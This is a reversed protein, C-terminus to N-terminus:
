FEEWEPVQAATARAGSGGHFSRSHSRLPTSPSIPRSLKSFTAASIPKAIAPTAKHVQRCLKFQGLRATLAAVENAQSHSAANAEEVMSANQQTAQDIQNVASSIEQLGISQERAAQVVGDVNQHIEQVEKVIADLAGGARNVLTVGRKVHESSSVILAKIEKAAAASRQALERVEQAVVAFGKGADGARAAEVGANLALLNTQFAIEDIVGIIKSISLSSEQIAGMAQVADRVVAGSQEAGLRTNSVREGAQEAYRTADKVSTTIQELAAATQEVSAAQQETRRALNDATERIEEAGTYITAANESFSLMAGELKEVSQNFNSRIEELATTFPRELRVLMDGDSLRALGVALESVAFRVDQEQASAIRSREAREEEQLRRTTAAEQELLVKQRSSDLLVGLSRSLEGIEDGRHRDTLDVDLDGEALRTTQSIVRNIRAVFSRSILWGALAIVIAAVAIITVSSWVMQVLPAYVASKPVSVVAFWKAGEFPTVPVAVAFNVEGGPEVIERVVGPDGIASKWAMVDLESTDLPKGVLAADPHFAFTENAALLSIYGAGMPRVKSLEKAMDKLDFDIATSGKFVGDDWFPTAITTMLVTQGDVPFEYPDLLILEGPKGAKIPAILQENDYEPTVVTELQNGSRHVYPVFRGTADHFPSKEHEADSGDFANPEWITGVAYISRNSKVTESFLAIAADRSLSKRGPLVTLTTSLDRVIQGSTRLAAETRSANEGALATMHAISEERIQQFSFYLLLGAVTVTALLGLAIVALINRSTASRMLM